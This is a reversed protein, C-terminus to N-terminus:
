KTHARTIRGLFIAAIIQVCADARDAKVHKINTANSDASFDFLRAFHVYLRRSQNKRAAYTKVPNEGLVVCALQNKKKAHILEVMHAPYIASFYFLLQAEITQNADHVSGFQGRKRPQREIIVHARHIIDRPIIRNLTDALKRARTPADVTDINQGLVDEVGGARLHLFSRNRKVCAALSAVIDSRTNSEQASDGSIILDNDQIVHPNWGLICWGLTRYACDFGIYVHEDDPSNHM